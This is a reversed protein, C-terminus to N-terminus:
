KKKKNKIRNLHNKNYICESIKIAKDFAFLLHIKTCKSKRLLQNKHQGGVPYAWVDYMAEPNKCQGNM